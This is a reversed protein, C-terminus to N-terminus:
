VTAGCIKRVSSSLLSYLLIAHPVAMASDRPHVVTSVSLLNDTVLV